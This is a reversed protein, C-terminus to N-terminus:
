STPAARKNAIGHPGLRRVEHLDKSTVPLKRPVWAGNGRAAGWLIRKPAHMGCQLSECTRQM